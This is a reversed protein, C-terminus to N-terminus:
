EPGMGTPADDEVPARAEIEKKITIVENLAAIFDQLQEVECYGAGEKFTGRSVLNLGYGWFSGDGEVIEPLTIAFQTLHAFEDSLQQSDFHGEEIHGLGAQIIKADEIIRAVSVNMVPLARVTTSTRSFVANFVPRLKQLRTILWHEKKAM